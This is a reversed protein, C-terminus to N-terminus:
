FQLFCLMLWCHHETNAMLWADHQLMVLGIRKSRHLLRVHEVRRYDRQLISTKKVSAEIAHALSADLRVKHNGTLHSLVFTDVTSPNM